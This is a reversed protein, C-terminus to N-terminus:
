APKLVLEAATMMEIASCALADNGAADAHNADVDANAAIEDLACAVYKDEPEGTAHLRGFARRFEDSSQESTMLHSFPDDTV